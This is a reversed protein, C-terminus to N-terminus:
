IHKRADLLLMIIECGCGALPSISDLYKYGPLPLLNHMRM